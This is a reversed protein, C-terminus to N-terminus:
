AREAVEINLCKELTGKALLCRGEGVVECANTRPQLPSVSGWAGGGEEEQPVRSSAYKAALPLLAEQDLVLGEERYRQDWSWHSFVEKHAATPSCPPSFNHRYHGVGLQHFKKPM